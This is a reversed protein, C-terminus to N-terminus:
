GYALTRLSYFVGIFLLLTIFLINFILKKKTFKKFYTSILDSEIILLNLFVFISFFRFAFVYLGLLIKGIVFFITFILSCSFIAILYYNQKTDKFRYYKIGVIFLYINLVFIFLNLFLEIFLLAGQEKLFKYFFWDVIFFCGFIIIPFLFLIFRKSFVKVFIRHFFQSIKKIFINIKPILNKIKSLFLYFFSYFLLIGSAILFIVIYSVTLSNKLLPTVMFKSNSYINLIFHNISSNKPVIMCIYAPIWGYFEQSFYFIISLLLIFCAWILTFKRLKKFESIDNINLANYKIYIRFISYIFIIILFYICEETHTISLFFFLFVILFGQKKNLEEKNAFSYFEFVLIMFIYTGLVGTSLTHPFKIFQPTLVALITLILFIPTKSNYDKKDSYSQFVSYFFFPIFIYILPFIFWLVFKVDIQTAEVLVIINFMSTSYRHPVLLNFYQLNFSYETKPKIGFDLYFQYLNYYFNSDWNFFNKIQLYPLIWITFLFISISFLILYKNKTFFIIYVLSLIVITLFIYFFYPVRLFFLFNSRYDYYNTAYSNNPVKSYYTSLCLFILSLFFLIYCILSKFNFKKLVGNFNLNPFFNKVKQSNIGVNYILKRKKSFIVENIVILVLNLIQLSVILSILNFIYGGDETLVSFDYLFLYTFFMFVNVIALSLVIIYGIKQIITSQPKLIEILNYGPIVLICLIGLILNIPQITISLLTINLYLFVVCIQLIIQSRIKSM